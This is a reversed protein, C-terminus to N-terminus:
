NTMGFAHGRSHVRNGNFDVAMGKMVSLDDLSKFDMSAKGMFSGDADNGGVISTNRFGVNTEQVWSVGASVVVWCGCVVLHVLHWM